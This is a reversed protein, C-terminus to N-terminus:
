LRLIQLTRSAALVGPSHGSSFLFASSNVSVPVFFFSDIAAFTKGDLAASGPEVALSPKSAIALSADAAGCAGKGIAGTFQANHSRAMRHCSAEQDPNANSGACNSAACLGACSPGLILALILMCAMSAATVSGRRSIVKMELIM